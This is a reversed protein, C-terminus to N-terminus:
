LTFGKSSIETEKEVGGRSLSTIGSFIGMELHDTKDSNFKELYGSITVLPLSYLMMYLFTHIFSLIVNARNETSLAEERYLNSKDFSTLFKKLVQFLSPNVSTEGKKKQSIQLPSGRIEERFFGVNTMGIVIVM